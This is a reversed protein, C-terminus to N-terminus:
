SIRWKEIFCEEWPVDNIHSIDLLSNNKLTFFTELCSTASFDEYDTDHSILIETENLFIQVCLGHWPDEEISDILKQSLEQQSLDKLLDIVYFNNGSLKIKVTKM